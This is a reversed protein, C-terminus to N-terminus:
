PALEVKMQRGKKSWVLSQLVYLSREIPCKGIKRSLWYFVARAIRAVVASKIKGSCIENSVTETIGGIWSTIRASWIHAQVAPRMRFEYLVSTCSNQNKCVRQVTVASYAARDWASCEIRWIDRFTNILSKKMAALPTARTTGSTTDFLSIAHPNDRAYNVHPIIERTLLTGM